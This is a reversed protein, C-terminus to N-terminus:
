TDNAAVDVGVTLLVGWRGSWPLLTVIGTARPASEGENQQDGHPGLRPTLNFRNQGMLKPPCNHCVPETGWRSESAQPVPRNLAIPLNRSSEYDAGEGVASLAEAKRCGALAAARRHAVARGRVGERRRTTLRGTDSDGSGAHCM